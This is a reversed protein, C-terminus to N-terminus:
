RESISSVLIEHFTLWFVSILLRFTQYKILLESCMVYAFETETCLNVLKAKFIRIFEKVGCLILGADTTECYAFSGIKM